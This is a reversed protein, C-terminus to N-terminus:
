EAAKSHLRQLFQDIDVDQPFVPIGTSKGEQDQSSMSEVGGADQSPAEGGERESSQSCFAEGRTLDQSLSAQFARGEDKQSHLPESVTSSSSSTHSAGGAVPEDHRVGPSCVESLRRRARRSSPLQGAGEIQSAEEHVRNGSMDENTSSALEASGQAPASGDQFGGAGLM